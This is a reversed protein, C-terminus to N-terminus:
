SRIYIDKIKVLSAAHGQYQYFNNILDKDSIIMMRTDLINREESVLVATRQTECVRVVEWSYTDKDQIVKGSLATLIGFYDKDKM